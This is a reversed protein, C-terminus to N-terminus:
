STDCLCFYPEVKNKPGADQTQGCCKMEGQEGPPSGTALAYILLLFASHWGLLQMKAVEVTEGEDCFFHSMRPMSFVLM